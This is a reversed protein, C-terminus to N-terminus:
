RGIWRELAEVTRERQDQAHPPLNLGAALDQRQGAARRDAFHVIAADPKQVGEAESIVVAYVSAEPKDTKFREKIALALSERPEYGDRDAAILWAAERQRGLRLGHALAPNQPFAM